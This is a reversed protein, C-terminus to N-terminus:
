SYCIFSMRTVHLHCALSMRIISGGTGGYCHRVLSMTICKPYYFYVRRKIYPPFQFRLLELKREM